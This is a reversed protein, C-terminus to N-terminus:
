AALTADKDPTMFYKAVDISDDDENESVLVLKTLLYLVEGVKLNVFYKLKKLIQLSEVRDKLMEEFEKSFVPLRSLLLLFDSVVKDTFAFYSFMMLSGDHGKLSKDLQSVCNDLSKTFAPADLKTLGYYDIQKTTTTTM